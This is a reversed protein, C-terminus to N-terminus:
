RILEYTKGIYGRKRLASVRGRPPLRVTGAANMVEASIVEVRCYVIFLMRTARTWLRREVWREGGVGEGARFVGSGLGLMRARTCSVRPRQDGTRLNLSSSYARMRYRCRACTWSASPCHSAHIARLASSRRPPAALGSILTSCAIRSNSETSRLIRTNSLFIRSCPFPPPPPPQSSSFTYPDMRRANRPFFLRRNYPESLRIHDVERQPVCVNPRQRVLLYAPLGDTAGSSYTVEMCRWAHFSNISRRASLEKNVTCQRSSTGFYAIEPEAPRALELM